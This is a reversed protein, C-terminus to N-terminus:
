FMNMISKLKSIAHNNLQLRLQGNWTTDSSESWNFAERNPLRRLLRNSIRIVELDGLCSTLRRGLHLAPLHGSLLATGLAARSAGVDGEGGGGRCIAITVLGGAALLHWLCLTDLDRDLLTSVLLDQDM